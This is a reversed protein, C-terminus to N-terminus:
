PTRGASDLILVWDEDGVANRGPSEFTRTGDASLPSSAASRYGGDSPDFWSVRVEPGALARLDIKLAFSKPLYVLAFSRDSAVTAIARDGWFPLLNKLVSRDRDPRLKWWDRSTMLRWVHTMDSSGRSALAAQWTTNVKYYGPGGFHWIPHNGFVQGSAGAFLGYYAQARIHRGDIGPTNEYHSELLFLPAGGPRAYQAETAKRVDKYSYVSNVGLWDEGSWYDFAATEPACHATSLATPLVERIGQAIASVLRRDPPNFDGGHAWVINQRQAFREGVYRGYARLVEPGNRTMEAYWGEPGGDFGLYSPALLVLFGREEARQLVRNARAFYADNPTRYDGPQKFPPVGAIDAPANDSFKHELLNILLTNVGRRRRDDLYTEIEEDRLQAIMSWAADGHILFPRGDQDVLARGQPDVHVPFAHAPPGSAVDLRVTATSSGGPGRCVIDFRSRKVLAESNETGSTAKPGAWDGSADCSTADKSSWTLAVYEGNYPRAPSATLKVYPPSVAPERQCGVILPIVLLTRLWRWNRGRHAM